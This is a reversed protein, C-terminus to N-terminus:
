EDTFTDPVAEPIDQALYEFFKGTAACLEAVNAGILLTLNSIEDQQNFVNTRRQLLDDISLKGDFYETVGTQYNDEFSPLSALLQEKSIGLTDIRILPELTDVFIDNERAAIAQTFRWINAQAQRSLSTTVRPDVHSVDFGVSATWDSNGEEDSKGEINSQASLLLAIDWTGRRALDLQVQANEVSNRLTAIEPDTEISLQLLEAHGSGVFPNFDIDEFSVETNFPLGIAGKFRQIDIQYRGTRVVIQSDVSEIEASLRQLDAPPPPNPLSKLQERLSKLDASWLKRYEVERFLDRVSYYRFLVNQLRNRVTQIYALRADNLENQRFIDESTRTLRQRSAALPYRINGRIYPQNGIGDNVDVTRFGAAVDMSTTDFFQKEVGVEVNHSRTRDVLENARQETFSNDLRLRPTLSDRNAYFFDYRAEESKYRQFSSRIDPQLSFALPILSRPNVNKTNGQIDTLLREPPPANETSEPVPLSVESTFRQSPLTSNCGPMLAWIAM